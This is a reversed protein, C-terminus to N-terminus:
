HEGLECSHETKNEGDLERIASHLAYLTQDPRKEDQERAADVVRQKLTCKCKSGVHEDIYGCLRSNEEELEKVRAQLAAVEQSRRNDHCQFCVCAGGYEHM